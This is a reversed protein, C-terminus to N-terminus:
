TPEGAEHLHDLQQAVRRGLTYCRQLADQHIQIGHYGRYDVASVPNAVVKIGLATLYSNLGAIAFGADWGYSGFVAGILNRPKLGRVYTLLDAVTPFMNNNLTPSGLLFAGAELLETAIDSRHHSSLPMLRVTTGAGSLGEAVARGMVATSEWMTDYAVVAKNTPKQAAWRGYLGVIKDLNERWVPGHDPLIMKIDLNKEAVKDLVKTVLPSYPLLINAYYKSAERVLLSEDLRDAYREASALHMGFADQSFLLGDEALYTFMSEPWHLMAADMFRLTKGGLSVSEGENVPTVDGELEFHESLAKAGKASAYIKEPLVRRITDPLCGTHDLEAHNSVILDIRKPDIVSSIRSLMEEQFPAKVTDILAIKDALVLYANYTTGRNTAYGHFDRISWDIAGVWYVHDTIDIAKFPTDM